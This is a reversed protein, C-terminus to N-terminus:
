QEGPGKPSLFYLALQCLLIEVWDISYLDSVQTTTHEKKLMITSVFTGSSVQDTLQFNLWWIRLTFLGPVSQAKWLHFEKYITDKTHQASEIM